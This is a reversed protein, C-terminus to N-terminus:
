ARRLVLLGIPIFLWFGSIPMILAGAAGMAMLSWGLSSPLIGIRREAWRALIGLLTLMVGAMMFWFPYPRDPYPDVANLFGDAAIGALESHFLFIGAAFHLMAVALLLTGTLGGRRGTVAGSPAASTGVTYRM